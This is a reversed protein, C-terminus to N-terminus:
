SSSTRSVQGAVRGAQEAVTYQSSSGTGSDGIIAFKLDDAANPLTIDQAAVLSVLALALPVFSDRFVM